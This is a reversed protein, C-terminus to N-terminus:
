SLFVHYRNVVPTTVFVDAVQARDCFHTWPTDV